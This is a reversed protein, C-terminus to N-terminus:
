RRSKITLKNRPLDVTSPVFGNPAEIHEDESHEEDHDVEDPPRQPVSAPEAPAKDETAPM